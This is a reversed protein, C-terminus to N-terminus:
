FTPAMLRDTSLLAAVANHVHQDGAAFQALSNQLPKLHLPNQHHTELSCATGINDGFNVGPVDVDGLAAVLPGSGSVCDGQLTGIYVGFGTATCAETSLSLVGFQTKACGDVGFIWVWIGTAALFDAQLSWDGFGTGDSSNSEGDRACLGLIDVELSKGFLVSRLYGTLCLFAGTLSFRHM